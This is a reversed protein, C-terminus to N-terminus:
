PTHVPTLPKNPTRYLRKSTAARPQPPRPGYAFEITPLLPLLGHRSRAAPCSVPCRTRPFQSRPFLIAFVTTSPAPLLFRNSPAALFHPAGRLVRLKRTPSLLKMGCLQDTTSFSAPNLCRQAKRHGEDDGWM